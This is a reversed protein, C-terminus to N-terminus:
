TTQFVDDIAQIARTLRDPYEGRILKFRAKLSVLEREWVQMFYARLHPFDRLPDDEWPIDIDMLLYLDYQHNQLEALVEAPTQGFIYDCWIKVTLFMTDCILIKNARQSLQKELALQGQFINIEDEITCEKQLNECYERSYEPVWVTEYHKALLSSISSKGTSEPGVIAVKFIKDSKDM